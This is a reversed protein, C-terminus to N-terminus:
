QSHIVTSVELPIMSIFLILSYLFPNSMTGYEALFWVLYFV